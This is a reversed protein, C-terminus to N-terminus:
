ARRGSGPGGGGLYARVSVSPGDHGDHYKHRTKAKKAPRKETEGDKVRKARPFWVTVREVPLDHPQKSRPCGRGPVASHYLILGSQM